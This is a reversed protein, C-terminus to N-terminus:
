ASLHHSYLFIDTQPNALQDLVLNDSSADYSDYPLCYPSNNILDQTNFTLCSFYPTKELVNMFYWSISSERRHVVPM